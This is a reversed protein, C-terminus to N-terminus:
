RVFNEIRDGKCLTCAVIICTAWISLSWSQWISHSFMIGGLGAGFAGWMWPKSQPNFGEDLRKLMQWMALLWLIAGLFGFEFIIQLFINHPHLNINRRDKYVSVFKGVRGGRAEGEAIYNRMDAPEFSRGSRLGHGIIPEKLSEKAYVYFLWERAEAAGKQIFVKPAYNKVWKNEYSAIHILPASLLAVALCIWIIFRTFRAAAYGLFLGASGICLALLASQSNSFYTVVFGCALGFVVLWRYNRPLVAGLLMLIIPLIILSRNVQRLLEFPYNLDAAINPWYVNYPGIIMVLVCGAIMSAILLREWIRRKHSDSQNITKIAAITFVIIGTATLFSGLAAEYSSWFVALFAYAMFALAYGYRKVQQVIQSSVFAQRNSILAMLSFLGALALIPAFGKVAFAHLPGILLLFTLATLTSISSVRSVFNPM